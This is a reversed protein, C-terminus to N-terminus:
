LGYCSATTLQPIKSAEKWSHSFRKEDGLKMSDPGLGVSHTECKKDGIGWYRKRCRLSQVGMAKTRIVVKCKGGIIPGNFCM